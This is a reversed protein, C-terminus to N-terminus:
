ENTSRRRPFTAIEGGPMCILMPGDRVNVQWAEYWDLPLVEVSLDGDFRILLTGDKAISAEEISHGFLDLAPGLSGRDREIDCRATANGRQLTFPAELNIWAKVTGSIDNGELMDLTFRNDVVCRLVRLGVIPLEAPANTESEHM